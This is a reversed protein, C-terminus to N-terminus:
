LENCLLLVAFQTCVERCWWCSIRGRFRRGWVDCLGQGESRQSWREQTCCWAEKGRWWWCRICICVVFWCRIDTLLINCLINCWNRLELAVNLWFFYSCKNCVLWTNYIVRCYWVSCFIFILIRSPFNFYLKSGGSDMGTQTEDEYSTM